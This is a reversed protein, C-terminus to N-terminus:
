TLRLGPGGPARCGGAVRPACPSAGARCDQCTPPPQSHSWLPHSARSVGPGLVGLAAHSSHACHAAVPQPPGAQPVAAEGRGAGEAKDKPPRPRARRPSHRARPGITRPRRLHRGLASIVTGPLRRGSRAASRVRAARSGAPTGPAGPM